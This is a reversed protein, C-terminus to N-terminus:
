KIKVRPVVSMGPVINYNSIDEDFVIKVPVRQVIKVYSGVANEPPFLSSKAGTSRQISDVHGLFRKNPYTDIKIKVPQNPKMRTLQIEKFNAIVWVEEPVINMLPQGISVYNGKEVSRASVMGDQPAYIKTYKLNLKAQEVEAELRKILAQNSETKAKNSELAHKSARSTEEASNNDAFAVDLSTKSKEYDQKSVIGDKYLEEYRSYDRQAFQLKSQASSIEELSKSVVASSEDVKKEAINLNAKAEALKAEAQNLAQIFDNPDLEVLLDGAKVQQNDDVLLKIVPASVRPAISVLRGEVFADDTSQYFTSRVAAFIGLLVLIIATITPVVVRKKMYEPRRKKLRAKAQKEFTKDEEKKNTRVRKRTKTEQNNEQNLDNKNNKDKEM